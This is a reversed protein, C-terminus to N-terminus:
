LMPSIIKNLSEELIKKKNFLKSKINKIIESKLLESKRIYIDFM